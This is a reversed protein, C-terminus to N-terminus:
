NQYLPHSDAETIVELLIVSHSHIKCFKPSKYEEFCEIHMTKSIQHRLYFDFLSRFLYFMQKSIQRGGEKENQKDFYISILLCFELYCFIALRDIM